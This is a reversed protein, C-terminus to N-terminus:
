DLSYFICFSSFLQLLEGVLYDHYSLDIRQVVFLFMSLAVIVSTLHLVNSLTDGFTERM